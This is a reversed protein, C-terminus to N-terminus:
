CLYAFKHAKFSSTGLDMSGMVEDGGSDEDLDGDGDDSYEGGSNDDEDLDGFGSDDSDNMDHLSFSTLEQMKRM